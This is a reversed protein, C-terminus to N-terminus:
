GRCVGSQKELYLEIEMSSVRRYTRYIKYREGALVAEQEGNYNVDPTVFMVASNMADRGGLFWESRTISELRGFIERTSESAPVQERQANAAYQISVLTLTDNM